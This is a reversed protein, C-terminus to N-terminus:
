ARPRLERRQLRRLLRVLLERRRPVEPVDGSRARRLLGVGRVRALHRTASQCSAPPTTTPSTTPPPPLTGPRRSMAALVDGARRWTPAPPHPTRWRPAACASPSSRSPFRAGGTPATAMEGTIADRQSAVRAARRREMRAQRSHQGSCRRHQPASPGAADAHGPAPADAAPTVPVPRPRTSLCPHLEDRNTIRMLYSNGMAQFNLSGFRIEFGAPLPDSSGM